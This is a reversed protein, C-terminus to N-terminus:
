RVRKVLTRAKGGTPTYTLALSIRGPAVRKLKLALKVRGAKAITKRARGVGVSRKGRKLTARVQLRGRGPVKVVLRVTRGRLRPKGVLSFRNSPTTGTTSGGPAPPPAPGGGPPTGGGGTAQPAVPAGDLLVTPAGGPQAPTSLQLQGTLPGYTLRAGEGAETIPAYTFTEGAVPITLTVPRHDDTVVLARAPLDVVDILGDTEAVQLGIPGAAAARRARVVAAGLVGPSFVTVGGALDCPGPLLRPVRGVDVWDAYAELVKANNVLPVHDVGCTDQVHIQDAPLAPLPGVPGQTGSLAPVTGDGNAWTVAVDTAGGEKRIFDLAGFTPVGTGVVAKVDIKGQDDFFRDYISGHYAQGEGLLGVNGGIEGVFTGLDAPAGDARLWGPTYSSSPILQYLGGLNIALERLEANRFIWDMGPGGEPTEIGFALPFLSKPAGWYPTGVTLARAVKEPHEELYTRILLGGYSHGWLVVRGAGQDNWRGPRLLAANVANDLRELSAQPRKRWDWGFMTGRGPELEDRVYDGVTDYIDKFLVTDVVDGPSAGTCGFNTLGDAALRMGLPDPSPANPWLERAGCNIDTGLFGPVFVVPLTQHQVDFASRAPV